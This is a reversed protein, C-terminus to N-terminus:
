KRPPKKFTIDNNSDSKVSPTSLKNMNEENSLISGLPNDKGCEWQIIMPSVAGLTIANLLKHGFNTRILVRSFGNGACDALIKPERLGWFYVYVTDSELFTGIASDKQILRYHSCSNFCIASLSIVIYLLFRTKYVQIMILKKIAYIIQKLFVKM